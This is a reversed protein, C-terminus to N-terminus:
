RGPSGGISTAPEGFHLRHGEAHVRIHLGSLAAAFAIAGPAVALVAVIDGRRLVERAADQGASDATKPEFLEVYRDVASRIARIAAPDTTEILLVVPGDGPVKTLGELTFRQGLLSRVLTVARDSLDRVRWRLILLVGFTMLGAGFFLFRPLPRSDFEEDPEMGTPRLEYHDVEGIRYYKVVVADGLNVSRDIEIEPPVHAPTAGFLHEWVNLHEEEKTHPRGVTLEGVKFYVPRGRLYDRQDLIGEAVRDTYPVKPLFEFKKASTVLVSFMISAAIAGTVNIFNSSAIMDGKSAKPARYQLLTFLPVLYFGTCTGILITCAVFGPIFGLSFGALLCGLMMGVAGIPILGLEVKRGSLWGALPSGLGVGLAVTGVVASTKLEDWRPNQSEGFMYVTARMFAVIFTFFAIGIVAFALPRSWLLTKLNNFLPGYLYPPFKRTPNAAPLWRILLSALTGVIALVLLVVGINSERRLFTFSMVGGSVTGLIVALFSLSELIGNGRSLLHPQLIEPMVGYKAPVFFASHTGMLFVTSLVVWSGLHPHNGDTGLWFGLLAVICIVVEAGKWFVLTNRKSYRDALFGAVTCFIAWPAYFLIPMLAIANAESLTQTNIAFFMASAHIAQDNFAALFQAALLGLYTRTLLTDSASDGIAKTPMSHVARASPRRVERTYRPSPPRVSLRVFPIFGAFRDPYRCVFGSGVQKVAVPRTRHKPGRHHEHDPRSIQPSGIFVRQPGSNATRHQMGVARRNSPATTTIWIDTRRAGVEIVPEGFVDRVACAPTLKMELAAIGQM